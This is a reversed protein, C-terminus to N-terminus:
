EPTAVFGLQKDVVNQLPEGAMYRELNALFARSFAAPTDAVDGGIHPSVIVNPMEWLPSGADLPEHEFVDLAAGALEGARLAEILAAEVVVPGRGINVLRAHTPLLALEAGGILGRTEPTLPTVLILWDADPLLAPLDAVARIRGEGAKGERERRGVLTVSMGM